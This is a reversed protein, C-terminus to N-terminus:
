RSVVEGLAFLPGGCACIVDESNTLYWGGCGGHGMRAVERDVAFEWSKTIRVLTAPPM